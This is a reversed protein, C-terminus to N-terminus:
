ARHKIRMQRGHDDGTGNGLHNTTAHRRFARVDLTEQWAGDILILPM